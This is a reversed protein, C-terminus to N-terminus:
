REAARIVMAGAAARAAVVTMGEGAVPAHLEDSEMGTVVTAEAGLDAPQRFLTAPAGNRWQVWEIFGGRATPRVYPRATEIDVVAVDTEGSAGVDGVILTYASFKPEPHLPGWELYVVREDAGLLPFAQKGPRARRTTRGTGREMVVVDSADTANEDFRGDADEAFDAFAVYTDSIDPFRQQGPGSAVVIVSAKGPEYLFIDTDGAEEASLWATFVVADGAARPEGAHDFPGTVTRTAGEARVRVVRQGAELAEWAVVGGFATPRRPAEVAEALTEEGGRALDRARLSGDPHVYVLLCSAVAHPAYGLSYGNEGSGDTAAVEIGEAATAACVLPATGDSSGEAEAGCGALCIAGFFAVWTRMADRGM